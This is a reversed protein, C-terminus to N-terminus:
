LLRVREVAMVGDGSLWGEIECDFGRLYEESFSLIHPLVGTSAYERIEDWASGLLEQIHLAYSTLARALATGDDITVVAGLLPEGSELLRYRFSASVITARCRVYGGVALAEAVQAPPEWGLKTVRYFPNLRLGRGSSYVGMVEILTGPKASSLEVALNDSFTLIGVSASRDAIILTSSTGRRSPLVAVLRGKVGVVEGNCSQLEGVQVTKFASEKVLEAGLVFIRSLKTVRYRPFESHLRRADQVFLVHGVQPRPLEPSEHLLVCAPGSRTVGYVSYGGEGEVVEHVVMVFAEVGCRSVMEGLESWGGNELKAIESGESLVLEREGKYERVSANKVLVRDGPKLGLSAISDAVSDWATVTICGSEDALVMKQLKKGSRLQLPPPLKVIIAELKAGKLGVVLDKILLRNGRYSTTHEPPLPVGLEKAVLLAAAEEDILGELEAVRDEIMRRVDNRTLDKRHALIHDIVREVTSKTPTSM